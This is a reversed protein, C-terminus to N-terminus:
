CRATRRRAPAPQHGRVDPRGDRGRRASLQVWDWAVGAEGDAADAAGCPRAARQALRRARRPLCAHGLHDFQLRTAGEAQWLLPPWARVIWSTTM